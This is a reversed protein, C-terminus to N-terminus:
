KGGAAIDKFLEKRTETAPSPSAQAKARGEKRAGLYADVSTNFEDDKVRRDSEKEELRHKRKLWYDKKVRRRDRKDDMLAEARDRAHTYDDRGWQAQKDALSDARDQARQEAAAKRNYGAEIRNGLHNIGRGVLNASQDKVQGWAWGLAKKGLGIIDVM